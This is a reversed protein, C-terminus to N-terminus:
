SPGYPNGKVIVCTIEALFLSTQTSEGKPNIVRWFGIVKDNRKGSRRAALANSLHISINNEDDKGKM